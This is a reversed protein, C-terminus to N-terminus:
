GFDSRVKLKILEYVTQVGGNAFTIEIEGEFTGEKSLTGSPCDTVCKGAAPDVAACNLISKTESAGLERIRLKVTAGTIDIAAWTKSDDPDLSLGTAASTSDKLTLNLEPLTDRAVLNLTTSYAM